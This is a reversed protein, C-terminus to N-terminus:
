SPHTDPPPVVCVVVHADQEGRVTRKLSAFRNGAAVCCILGNARNHCRRNFPDMMEAMSPSGSAASSALCIALGEDFAVAM